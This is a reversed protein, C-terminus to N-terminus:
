MNRVSVVVQRSSIIFRVMSARPSAAFTFTRNGGRVPLSAWGPEFAHAMAPRSVAEPFGIRDFSMCRSNESGPMQYM